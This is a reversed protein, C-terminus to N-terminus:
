NGIVAWCTPRGHFAFMVAAIVRSYGAVIALVPPRGRQGHGLPIDVPPFWLDCQALEGALYRTRGVPDRPLYLPRLERIRHKLITM